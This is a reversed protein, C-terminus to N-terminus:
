TEHLEGGFLEKVRDANKNIFEEDHSIVIIGIGQSKLNQLLSSLKDKRVIDLGTTPEDLILFNPENIFISALAVRQREGRSIRYPSSDELGELSFDEIIKNVKQEVLGKDEGMFSHAFGIEERVTPNFLQRSPQQFLYGIKKGINGLSINKVDEGDVLIYGHDAKLIGTMLKGLTTKGSGNPGVIATIEGKNFSATINKFIIDSKEYSFSVNNVEIFPNNNYVEQM